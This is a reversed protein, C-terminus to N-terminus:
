LKRRRDQEDRGAKDVVGGRGLWKALFQKATGNKVQGTSFRFLTFGKAAATSYKLCDAEYGAGRTHRGQQYVMGEVELLVEQGNLLRNTIRFDAKWQRTPEFQYEREFTLRLEPLHHEALLLIAENKEAKKM